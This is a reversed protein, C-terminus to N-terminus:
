KNEEKKSNKSGSSAGMFLMEILILIVAGWFPLFIIAVTGLAVGGMRGNYTMLLSYVCFGYIFLLIPTTIPFELAVLLFVGCALLEKITVPFSGEFKISLIAAILGIAGLIGMGPFSFPNGHPDNVIFHVFVFVGIGFLVAAISYEVGDQRAQGECVALREELEMEISDLGIDSVKSYKADYDCREPQLEDSQNQELEKRMSDLKAKNPDVVRRNFSEEFEYGCEVCKESSEINEKGCLPCIM